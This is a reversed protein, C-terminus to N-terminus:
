KNVVTIIRSPLSVAGASNTAVVYVKYLRGPITEPITFFNTAAYGTFVNAGSIYHIRYGLAPNTMDWTLHISLLALLATFLQKM